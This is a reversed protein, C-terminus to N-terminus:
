RFAISMGGHQLLSSTQSSWQTTTTQFSTLGSPPPPILDFVKTAVLRQSTGNPCRADGPEGPGCMAM